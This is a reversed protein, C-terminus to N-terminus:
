TISFINSDENASNWAPSEVSSVEFGTIGRSLYYAPKTGFRTKYLPLQGRIVHGCATDRKGGTRKDTVAGCVSCEYQAIMAGMSYNTRQKNRIANALVPDAKTDFGCLCIVKALADKTGRMPVMRSDFIIGKAKTYDSNAHELFTPKGIWTKYSPRGESPNFAMLEEYPFAVSNRNPIDTPMIIVPVTVYDRINKSINYVAAAAPLWDQVELKRLMPAIDAAMEPTGCVQGVSFMAQTPSVTKDLISLDFSM